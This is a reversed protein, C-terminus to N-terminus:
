YLIIGVFALLLDAVSRIRHFHIFLMIDLFAFPRVRTELKFGLSNLFAELAGCWGTTNPVMHLFQLRAYELLKIDVALTPHTPSSCM